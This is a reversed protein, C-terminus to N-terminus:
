SFCLCDGRTFLPVSWSAKPASSIEHEILRAVDQTLSENDDFPQRPNLLKLRNAWLCSLLCM